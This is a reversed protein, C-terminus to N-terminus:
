SYSCSLTSYLHMMPETVTCRHLKLVTEAVRNRLVDSYTIAVQSYVVVRPNRVKYPM